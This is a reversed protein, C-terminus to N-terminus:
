RVQPKKSMPRYAARVILGIAVAIAAVVIGGTISAVASADTTFAIVFYIAGAVLCPTVPGAMSRALKLAVAHM